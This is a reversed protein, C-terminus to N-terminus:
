RGTREDFPALRCATDRLIEAHIGGAGVVIVPGFVVDNVAGAILEFGGSLMESVLVGDIRASPALSRANDLVERIGAALEERTRLNLKVAGVETKHAIDPSVVKVVWPPMLSQLPVDDISRVVVDHTTAIGIRKLLAKSDAESLTSFATEILASRYDAHHPEPAASSASDDNRTQAERYTALMAIVKAARGPTPLVPIRAEAFIRLADGSESAPTSLFVVVPKVRHRMLEKLVQAGATCGSGVATAFNVCVAEVSTDDLVAKVAKGFRETNEATIYGATFDVPNHVAGIEPVVEWLKRQTDERLTTLHLGAREAADAFVIASGGSGSMVAVRRGAPFRRSEFGHIYDVAEHIEQIEVIGAQKFMAQYFDYSGTLNATHSAAAHAGQETVGGKWILLPKGLKLARRGVDLLARGNQMGEIYA